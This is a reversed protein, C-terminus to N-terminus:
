KRDIRAPSVPWSQTNEGSVVAAKTPFPTKREELGEWRAHGLETPKEPPLECWPALADANASPQPRTRTASPSWHRPRDDTAIDGTPSPPAAEAM